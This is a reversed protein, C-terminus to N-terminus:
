MSRIPESFHENYFSSLKLIIHRSLDIYLRDTYLRYAIYGLAPVGVGILYWSRSLAKPPRLKPLRRNRQIEMQSEISDLLESVETAMITIDTIVVEGNPSTSEKSPVKRVAWIPLSPSEHHHEGGSDHKAENNENGEFYLTENPWNKYFPLKLGINGARYLQDRVVRIADVSWSAIASDNISINGGSFNKVFVSSHGYYVSNFQQKPRKEFPKSGHTGIFTAHPLIEISNLRKLTPNNSKKTKPNDFSVKSEM